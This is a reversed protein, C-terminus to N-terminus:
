KKRLNGLSALKKEYHIQIQVQLRFQFNSM